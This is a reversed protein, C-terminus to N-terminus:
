TLLGREPNIIYIPLERKIAYSIANYTGGSHGGDWIALVANANDIMWINRKQYVYSGPYSMATDVIKQEHAHEWVWDYAVKWDKRPAHGAFPKAAIYPINELSAAAASWLDVGAAMGQIVIEPKNERFFTRMANRVLNVDSIREPRHGTIALRM